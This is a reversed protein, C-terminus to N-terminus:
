SWLRGPELQLRIWHSGDLHDNVLRSGLRGDVLQEKCVGLENHFFQGRAGYDGRNRQEEKKESPEHTSQSTIRQLFEHSLATSVSYSSLATHQIQSAFIDLNGVLTHTLQFPSSSAELDNGSGSDHVNRYALIISPHDCRSKSLEDGSSAPSSGYGLSGHLFRLNM